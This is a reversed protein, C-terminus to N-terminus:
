TTPASSPQISPGTTAFLRAVQSKLQPFTRTLCNAQPDHRLSPLAPCSRTPPARWYRQQDSERNLGLLILRPRERLIEAMPRFFSAEDDFTRRRASKKNFGTQRPRRSQKQEVVHRRSNESKALAIASGAILFFAIACRQQSETSRTPPFPLSSSPYRKTSRTKAFSAGGSEAKRTCGDLRMVIGKSASSRARRALASRM